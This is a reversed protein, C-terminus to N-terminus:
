FCVTFVGTRVSIDFFVTGRVREVEISQVGPSVRPVGFPVLFRVWFLDPFLRRVYALLSGWIVGFDEQLRRRLAERLLDLFLSLFPAM